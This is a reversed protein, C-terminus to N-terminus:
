GPCVWGVIVNCAFAWPAAAPEHAAAANAALMAATYWVTSRGRRLTFLLVCAANALRFGDLGVVAVLPLLGLTALGWAAQAWRVDLVAPTLSLAQGCVPRPPGATAAVWVWGTAMLTFLRLLENGSENLHESMCGPNIDM